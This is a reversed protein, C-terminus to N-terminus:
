EDKYGFDHKPMSFNYKKQSNLRQEERSENM